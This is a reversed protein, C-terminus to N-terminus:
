APKGLVKARARSCEHESSQKVISLSFTQQGRRFALQISLAWSWRPTERAHVDAHLSKAAHHVDFEPRPATAARVSFFFAFRSTSVTEVNANKKLTLAADAGLSYCLGGKDLVKERFGENCTKCVHVSLFRSLYGFALTLVPGQCDRQGWTRLRGRHTSPLLSLLELVQCSSRVGILIWETYSVHM